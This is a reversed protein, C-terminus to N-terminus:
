PTWTVADNDTLGYIQTGETCHIQFTQGPPRHQYPELEIGLLKALQNIHSPPAAPLTITQTGSATFWITNHVQHLAVARPLSPYRMRTIIYAGIKAACADHHHQYNTDAPPQFVPWDDKIALDSPKM